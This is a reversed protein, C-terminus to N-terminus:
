KGRELNKYLKPGEDLVARIHKCPKAFPNEGRRVKGMTFDNCTCTWLTSHKFRRFDQQLCIRATVLSRALPNTHPTVYYVEDSSESHVILATNAPNATIKM